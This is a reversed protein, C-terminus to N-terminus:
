ARRATREAQRQRQQGGLDQPDVQEGVAQGAHRQAAFGDVRVDHAARGARGGLADEAGAQPLADQADADDDGGDGEADGSQPWAVPRGHCLMAKKARPAVWSATASPERARGPVQALGISSTATAPASASCSAPM